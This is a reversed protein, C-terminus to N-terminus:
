ASRAFWREAPMRDLVHRSLRHGVLAPHDFDDSPDHTMELREMVARSRVNGEFTFSVIESLRHEAFGNGLAAGAAETAFGHGWAHRALGWGVEVAPTFAADFNPVSLGTFGIFAGTSRVELAWLGFGWHEFGDENKVVLADSEEQSHPSPFHEMVEPDANLAAFPERDEARWHRLVLRETELQTPSM